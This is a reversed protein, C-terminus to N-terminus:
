GGAAPALPNVIPQLAKSPAMEARKNM